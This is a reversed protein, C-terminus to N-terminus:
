LEETLKKSAPLYRSSWFKMVQNIGHDDSLLTAMIITTVVVDNSYNRTSKVQILYEDWM